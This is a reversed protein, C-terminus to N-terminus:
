QALKGKMFIALPDEPDDVAGAVSQCHKVPLRISQSTIGEVLVLRLSSSQRPNKRDEFVAIPGQPERCHTCSQQFEIALAIPEDTIPVIGAIWLAQGLIAHNTQALVMLSVNPDPQM